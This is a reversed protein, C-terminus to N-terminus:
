ISIIWLQAFNSIKVKNHYILNAIQCIFCIFISMFILKYFYSIESATCFYVLVLICKLAATSLKFRTGVSGISKL